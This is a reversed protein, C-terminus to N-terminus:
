AADGGTRIPRYIATVADRYTPDSLNGFCVGYRHLAHVFMRGSHMFYLGCHHIVKGVRFCVLDGIEPKNDQLKEVLGLLNMSFCPQNRVWDVVLSGELHRGGDMTYSPFKYEAFLGCEKYIQACLHVCDVGVGRLSAHPVFKTGIWTLAIARFKERAENTDFFPTM